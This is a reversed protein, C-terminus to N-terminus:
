VALLLSILRRTRLKHYGALQFLKGQTSRVESFNASMSHCVEVLRFIDSLKLLPCINLEKAAGPSKSLRKGDRHQSTEMSELKAAFVVPKELYTSHEEPLIQMCM